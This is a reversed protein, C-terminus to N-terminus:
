LSDVLVAVAILCALSVIVGWFLSLDRRGKQGLPELSRASPLAAVGGLVAAALVVVTPGAGRWDTALRILGGVVFAAVWATRAVVGARRLQEVGSQKARTSTVVFTTGAVM